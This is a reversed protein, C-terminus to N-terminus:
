GFDDGDDGFVDAYVGDDDIKRDEAPSDYVVLYGGAVHDAVGEAKDTGYEVEEAHTIDFLREVEHHVSTHEDRLGGGVRWIAIDGDLDMTPGALVYLNDNAPDTYCERIGMGALNLFHKRYREGDRGIRRPKLRRGKKKLKFQVEVVVAYSNLVPGRLGLFVREGVVTLGEVDFGNDKSPLTIYDALHQDARLEDLLRNTRGDTDMMGAYVTQGDHIAVRRPEPHGDHGTTLPARLLVYRNEDRKVTALAEVQEDVDDEPDPHGRKESMSGTIYLFGDAVDMGEIDMETDDAAPLDALNALRFQRHEAYAEGDWRLREVTTSEDFAVWLYDGDRTLSSIGDRIKDEHQNLSEDFRLPVRHRPPPPLRHVPSPVPYLFTPIARLSNRRRRPIKLM